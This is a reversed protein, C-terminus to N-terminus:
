PPPVRAPAASGAPRGASSAAAGVGSVAASRLASRFVGICRTARRIIVDAGASAAQTTRTWRHCSYGENLLYPPLHSVPRIKGHM